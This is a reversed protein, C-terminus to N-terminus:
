CNVFVRKLPAIGRLIGSEFANFISSTVPFTLSEISFLIIFTRFYNVVLVVALSM